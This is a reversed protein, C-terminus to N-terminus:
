PPGESPAAESHLYRYYDLISAGQPDGLRSVAEIEALTSRRVQALAEPESPYSAKSDLGSGSGVVEEVLGHRRLRGDSLALKEADRLELYAPRLCRELAVLPEDRVTRDWSLGLESAMRAAGGLRALEHAHGVLVRNLLVLDSRRREVGQLYTWLFATDNGSPMLVAGTPLGTAQEAALRSPGFQSARNVALGSVLPGVLWLLVVLGALLRRRGPSGLLGPRGEWLAMCGVAAFPALGVAGPILYGLLDPNDPLVKNQLAITAASGLLWLSAAVLLPRGQRPVARIAFYLGVLLFTLSIDAWAWAVVALNSLLDTEQGGFNQAFDRALVVDLFRHFDAPVGWARHPLARARLPLWAFHALPLLAGLAGLVTGRYSFPHFVLRFALLGPLAALGILPHICVALGAFLGSLAWGRPGAVSVACALASVVAFLTPAYVEARVGQLQAAFSLLAALSAIWGAVSQARPTLGVRRGVQEALVFLPLATAALACASFLNSRFAIDGVPLLQFPKLM